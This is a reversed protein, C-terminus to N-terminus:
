RLPTCHAMVTRCSDPSQHSGALGHASVLVSGALQCAVSQMFSPAFRRCYLILYMIGSALAAGVRARCVREFACKERSWDDKQLPAAMENCHGAREGERSQQAREIVSLCTLM